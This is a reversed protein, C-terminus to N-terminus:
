QRGQGAVEIARLVMTGARWRLLCWLSLTHRGPGLGAALCTRVGSTAKGRMDVPPYEHGDIRVGVLRGDPARDHLLFVVPGEFTVEVSAARDPSTFGAEGELPQWDGKLRFAKGSTPLRRTAQKRAAAVEAPLLPVQPLSNFEGAIDAGSGRALHKRGNVRVHGDQILVKAEGGTAVLGLLKLYQGLRIRETGNNQSM